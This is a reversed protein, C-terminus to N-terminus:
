KEVTKKWRHSGIMSGHVIESSIRFRQTWLKSAKHDLEQIHQCHAPGFNWERNLACWRICTPAHTLWGSRTAHLWIVDFAGSHWYIRYQCPDCINACNVCLIAWTLTWSACEHCFWALSHPRNYSYRELQRNMSLYYSSRPRPSLGARGKTWTLKSISCGM